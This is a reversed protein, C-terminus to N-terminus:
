VPIRQTFSKGLVSECPPSTMAWVLVLELRPPDEFDDFLRLLLVEARLLVAEARLLLAEGFPELARRLLRLVALRVREDDADLPRLVACVAFSATLEPACFAACPTAVAAWFAFTGSSAPPAATAPSAPAATIAAAREPLRRFTSPTEIGFRFPNEIGFRL